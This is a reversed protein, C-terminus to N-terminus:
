QWRASKRGSWNLKWGQSLHIAIKKLSITRPFLSRFLLDSMDATGFEESYFARKSTHFLQFYGIGVDDDEAKPFDTKLRAYDIEGNNFYRSLEEKNKVNIRPVGYLFGIRLSNTDIELKPLIMDSDAIAIWGNPVQRYAERLLENVLKGKNFKAGGEYCRTSLITQVKHKFCLSITEKDDPTTVVIPRSIKLTEPLTVELFDAYNVCVLLIREIM